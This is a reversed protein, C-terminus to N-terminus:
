TTQKLWDELKTALAVPVEFMPYHGANALTELTAHPYWALWTRNMLDATLTPDHEGIFLKVPVQAAASGILEASFDRTAWEPLYGAFAERTSLRVSQNALHASWRPTLRNGTSFAIIGARKTVDNVTAGFGALRAADMRSGCAPVASIGAMREIRHPAALLVRQMAMGGMSHGILSFRQWDLNDALALVDSAVEAFTFAGDRELSQGYGRYDFFVYTFSDVDLAPELAKWDASSGFWGSLVLVKCPGHGVQVFGNVATM